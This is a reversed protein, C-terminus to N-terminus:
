VELLPGPGGQELGIRHTAHLQPLAAGRGGLAREVERMALLVTNNDKAPVRHNYSMHGLLIHKTRGSVVSTLLGACQRNSLHGRDGAVWALYGWDVAFVPDSLKDAVMGEDYNAEILLADLGSLADVFRGDAHGLDTVVGVGKSGSRLVFCVSRLKEHDFGHSTDHAEVGLAGISDPFPQVERIRKWSTHRGRVRLYSSVSPDAYVPIGYRANLTGAARYHDTHAHTILIGSIRAPPIGLVALREIITRASTGCDVLVGTEGAGVYTANGSSGSALSAIRLTM